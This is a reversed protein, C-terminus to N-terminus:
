SVHVLLPVMAKELNIRCKQFYVKKNHKESDVLTPSLVILLTSFAALSMFLVRALPGIPVCLM